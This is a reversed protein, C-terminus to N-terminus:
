YNRRSARRFEVCDRAAEGIAAGGIKDPSSRSGEVAPKDRAAAPRFVPMNLGPSATVSHLKAARRPVPAIGTLWVTLLIIASRADTRNGFRETMTGRMDRARNRPTDSRVLRQFCNQGLSGVSVSSECCRLSSVIRVVRRKMEHEIMRRVLLDKQRQDFHKPQLHARKQCQRKHCGRM